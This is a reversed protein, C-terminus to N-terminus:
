LIQNDTFKKRVEAKESDYESADIQKLFLDLNTDLIDIWMKGENAGSKV